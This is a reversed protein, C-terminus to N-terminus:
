NQIVGVREVGTVTRIFREIAHRPYPQDASKAYASIIPTYTAGPAIGNIIIGEHGFRKGFARTWRSVALKAAGYVGTIDMYAANSSFNLINGAIGHARFYDVENRILFFAAKFDVDSVEDWESSTIDWPEYGRGRTELTIAAANVFSDLGGMCERAKEFIAFHEEVQTIDASLVSLGETPLAKQAAYLKEKSRGAIVVRAGDALMKEAIAKGIGGDGGFILVKRSRNERDAIPKAATVPKPSRKVQLEIGEEGDMCYSVIEEVSIMDLDTQKALEERIEYYSEVPSIVILEAKDEYSSIEKPSIVPIRELEMFEADRDIVCIIEVGCKELEAIVRKGIHGVGYVIARRVDNDRFFAGIGIGSQELVLLGDIIDFANM